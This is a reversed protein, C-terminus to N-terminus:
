RRLNNAVQLMEDAAQISKSNIEYARQATIMDVMEEVVKVNSMELSGPSITGFGELGATGTVPSGSAATQRFVNRGESELGTPNVFRALQIQGLQQPASAGPLSAFVTGDQSVTVRGVAEPPVTIEPVVANGDSSVLRGQSDLKFTGDRTYGTQGDSLQVQFYGDGEIDLDLPNGTVRIDGQSQIREISAARTGLGVQIGTPVQAGQTAATGAARSNQYMLDQFDARSRKFGTTNVNALNNAIVDMNLQQATMGTASTYLARIM